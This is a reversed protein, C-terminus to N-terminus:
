AKNSLVPDSDKVDIKLKRLNIGITVIHQFGSEYMFMFDYVHFSTSQGRTGTTAGIKIKQGISM